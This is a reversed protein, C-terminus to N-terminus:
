YSSASVPPNKKLYQEDVSYRGSGHVMFFFSAALLLLPYEYGNDAGYGWLWGGEAGFHVFGIAGLMIVVDLKAVWHTLLGVMLMLGGILEGYAVLYTLLNAMPVGVSDFFPVVNSVGKVFVKDYGHYFFALGTVVRLATYAGDTWKSGCTCHLLKQM